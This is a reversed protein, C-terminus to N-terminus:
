KLKNSLSDALEAYYGNGNIIRKLYEKAEETKGLAMLIPKDGTSNRWHKKVHKWSM